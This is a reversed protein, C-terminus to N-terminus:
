TINTFMHILYIKHGRRAPRVTKGQIWGYMGHADWDPIGFAWDSQLNLVSFSSYKLPEFPQNAGLNTFLPLPEREYAQSIYAQLICKIMAQSLYPVLISLFTKIFICKNAGIKLM